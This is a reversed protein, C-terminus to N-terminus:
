ILMIARFDIKVKSTEMYIIINTKKIFILNMLNRLQYYRRFNGNQKSGDAPRLESLNM